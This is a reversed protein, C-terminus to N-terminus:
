GTMTSLVGSTAALIMVIVILGVIGAWSNATARIPGIGVVLEDKNARKSM